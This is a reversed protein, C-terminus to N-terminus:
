LGIFVTCCCNRSMQCETVQFVSKCETCPHQIFPHSFLVHNKMQLLNRTKFGCSIVECSLDNLLEHSKHRATEDDM